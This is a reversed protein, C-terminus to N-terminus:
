VEASIIQVERKSLMWPGDIGIQIWQDQYEMYQTSSGEDNKLYAICLVTSAASQEQLNVDVARTGALHFRIKWQNMRKEMAPRVTDLGSEQLLIQGDKKLTFSFNATVFEGLQDINGADLLLFIRDTLSSIKFQAESQTNMSLGGKDNYLRSISFEAAM